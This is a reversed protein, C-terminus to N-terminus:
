ENGKLLNKFSPFKSLKSRNNYIFYLIMMSYIIYMISVGWALIDCKGFEFCNIEYAIVVSTLISILAIQLSNPIFIVTSVSIIFGAILAIFASLSIDFKGFKLVYISDPNKTLYNM